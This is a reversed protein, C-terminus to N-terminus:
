NTKITMMRYDPCLCTLLWKWISNKLSHSRLRRREM